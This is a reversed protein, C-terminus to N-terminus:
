GDSPASSKVWTAPIGYVWRTAFTHCRRCTFTRPRPFAFKWFVGLGRPLVMHSPKARKARPSSTYTPIILADNGQNMENRSIVIVPRGRKVDGPIDMRWVSGQRFTM